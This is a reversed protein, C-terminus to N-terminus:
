KIGIRKKFKFLITEWDYDSLETDVPRATSTVAHEIAKLWTDPEYGEVTYAGTKDNAVEIMASNHATVIPCGCCLAELQPMGFGENLSTSVFCKAMNYLKALDENPVFSSFIVSERPFGDKEVIDKLSSSKWKKAGVVLLKLGTRKYLQPMLSLLFSLNKRPELSGVFLIYDGSIGYKAKCESIDSMSLDLKKYINRNIACGTFIDQCRREPFYAEVKSKTYYSNTWIVDSQRVSRDFFLYNSLKNTWVMTDSHEINVVDHVVIVKKIKRPLFFPICPLASYFVDAKFSRALYPFMLNLWVLNPLRLFLKNTRKVFSINSPLDHISLTDDIDRPLAVIFKDDPSQEAWARLSGYLFSSIGASSTVFPRGDIIINM